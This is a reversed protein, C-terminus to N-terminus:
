FFIYLTKSLQMVRVSLRSIHSSKKVQGLKVQAINEILQIIFNNKLSFHSAWM